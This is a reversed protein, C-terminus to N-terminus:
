GELEDEQDNMAALRLASLPQLSILSLWTPGSRGQEEFIASRRREVETLQRQVETLQRTVGFQQLPEQTEEDLLENELVLLTM